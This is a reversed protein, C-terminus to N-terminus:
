HQQERRGFLLLTLFFPGGLLATIVGVPIEAPALVTRAVADCLVLLGGSLFLVAPLLAAHMPGVLARCIHPVMLGIFGVPGVVSVIVGVELSIVFFLLYRLKVTDVGRSLAFESGASFLDLERYLLATVTSALVVVPLLQYVPAFGVSEVGGMLWRILEFTQSVSSLYQVFLILSSFFFSVAVGALLMTAPARRQVSFAIWFVITMSLLAGGVGCLTVMSVGLLSGSLGLWLASVAGLSAGSAVGLTFPTALPNQFLAQFVMGGLGLGAGALFGLLVRPLRLDWFIRQGTETHMIESVSLPVTGVFPAILVVAISLLIVFLTKM